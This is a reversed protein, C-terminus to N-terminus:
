IGFKLPMIKISKQVISNAVSTEILKKRALRCRIRCWCMLSWLASPLKTNHPSLSFSDDGIDRHMILVINEFKINDEVHRKTWMGSFLQKFEDGQVTEIPLMETVVFNVLKKDFDKQTQKSRRKSGEPEDIERKFSKNRRCFLYDEYEELHSRQFIIKILIDSFIIWKGIGSHAETITLRKTKCNCCVLNVFNLLKM